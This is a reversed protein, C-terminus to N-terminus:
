YSAQSLARAGEGKKTVEDSTPGGFLWGCGRLGQLLGKSAKGLKKVDVMSLDGVVAHLQILLEPRGSVAAM